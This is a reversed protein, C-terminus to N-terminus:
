IMSSDCISRPSGFCRATQDDAVCKLGTSITQPTRSKRPRFNSRGANTSGAVAAIVRFDSFPLSSRASSLGPRQFPDIAKQFVTKM